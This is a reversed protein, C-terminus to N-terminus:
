GYMCFRKRGAGKARYLAVDAQKLLAHIDENNYRVAVGISASLRMKGDQLTFPMDFMSMIREAMREPSDECDVHTAVIFEDGGLRILIYESNFHSHLRSAVEVLVMDGTDHGHNDNIKKFHDLDFMCLVLPNTVHELLYRRNFLKTLEDHYAYNRLQEENRKRETTDRTVSIIYQVEGDDDMIPTLLSEGSLMGNPMLVGDEFRIPKRETLVRTYNHHLYGAMQPSKNTEEFSLGVDKMSVGSFRTAMRNVYVYTFNGGEVKMIYISDELQDLMGPLLEALELMTSPKM